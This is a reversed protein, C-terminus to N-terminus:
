IAVEEFPVQEYVLKNAAKFGLLMVGMSLECPVEGESIFSLTVLILPILLNLEHDIM